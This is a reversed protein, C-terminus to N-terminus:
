SGTAVFKVDDILLDYTDGPLFHWNIATIGQPDFSRNPVGHGSRRLQSWLVTYSQWARSLQIEHIYDDFCVSCRGAAPDTNVDPVRLLVRTTASATEGLRAL